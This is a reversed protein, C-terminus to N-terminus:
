SQLIIVIFQFYIRPNQHYTNKIMGFLSIAQEESDITWDANFIKHRCHESNAQAFMMLEIDKPNRNLKSFQNYLYDIEDDSLALGLEGNSEEIASKGSSLIDINSFKKPEQENFLSDANSHNELHSETMKDIIIDLIQPLEFQLIKRNFHYIVGREIRKIGKLGCLNVIDTAKSSWPSITGLRPTVIINDNDFTSILQPAYNLLKDLKSQDNSTLKEYLDIFHIFETALIELNPTKLKISQNLSNVKFSRLAHIKSHTAIM